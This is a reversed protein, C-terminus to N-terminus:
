PLQILSRFDVGPVTATQTGVIEGKHNIWYYNSSSEVKLHRGTVPDIVDSTFLIANERRRSIEDDVRQKYEYTERITNSIATGMDAIIRSQAATLQSQMQAWGPNIAFTTSAHVMAAEAAQRREPPGENLYLRWLHWMRSGGGPDILETIAIANGEFAQGNRDFRYRVEGADFRNIGISRCTAALQPLDQWSILEFAGLRAPLFHYYLFSAGPAYPQVMWCYGSPDMYAGGQVIGGFMLMPNPEVFMQFHDGFWLRIQDDPSTVAVEAQVLAIGPRLTGGQVRWGAPLEMTFAQENPDHWREFTHLPADTEPCGQLRVSDMVRAFLDSQRRYADTNPASAFFSFGASGKPSTTWAVIGNIVQAGQWGWASLAAPGAGRPATWRAAPWVGVAMARLVEAAVGAELPAQVFFPWVTVTEGDPSTVDVRGSQHENVKWGPPAELSLGGM